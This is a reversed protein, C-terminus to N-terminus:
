MLKPCCCVNSGMGRGVSLERNRFENPNPDHEILRTKNGPNAKLFLSAM